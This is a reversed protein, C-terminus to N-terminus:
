ILEHIIDILEQLTIYNEVDKSNLYIGFEDEVKLQFNSLEFDDLGVIDGLKSELDFDEEYILDFEEEILKVLRTKVTYHENM